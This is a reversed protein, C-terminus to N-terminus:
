HRIEDCQLHTLLARINGHQKMVSNTACFIIYIYIWGVTKVYMLARCHQVPRAKVLLRVCVCERECVCVSEGIVECM